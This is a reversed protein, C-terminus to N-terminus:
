AHGQANEARRERDARDMAPARNKRRFDGDIRGLSRGRELRVLRLSSRLQDRFAPAVVGRRENQCALDRTTTKM